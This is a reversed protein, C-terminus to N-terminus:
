GFNESAEIMERITHVTSLTTDLDEKPVTEIIKEYLEKMAASQKRMMDKSKESLSVITKEKNEDISWIIYGKDDLYKVIKSTEVTTRGMRKALESLYVGDKPDCDECAAMEIQKLMYYDSRSLLAFVKDVSLNKFFFEEVFSKM